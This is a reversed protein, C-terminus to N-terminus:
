CSACTTPTSPRRPFSSPFGCAARATSASNGRRASCNPGTSGATPSRSATTPADVAAQLRVYRRAVARREHVPLHRAECAAPFHPKKPALPNAAKEAAWTSLGAFALYGFGSATTKLMTRRSLHNPFM